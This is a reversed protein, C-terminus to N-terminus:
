PPSTYTVRAHTKTPRPSYQPSTYTIRAISNPPPPPIHPTLWPLRLNPLLAREPLSSVRLPCLPNRIMMMSVVLGLLGPMSRVALLLVACCLLLSTRINSTEPLRASNGLRGSMFSGSGRPHICSTVILGRRCFFSLALVRGFRRLVFPLLLVWSARMCAARKYRWPVTLLLVFSVRVYAARQNVTFRRASGVRREHM